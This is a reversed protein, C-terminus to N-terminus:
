SGKKTLPPPLSLLSLLPPPGKVASIIGTGFLWRLSSASRWRGGGGGRCCLPLHRDRAASASVDDDPTWAPLHSHHLHHLLRPPHFLLQLRLAGCARAHGRHHHRHLPLLLLLCLRHVEEVAAPGRGDERGHPATKGGHQLLPLCVFAIIIQM